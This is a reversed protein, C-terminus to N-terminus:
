RLRDRRAPIAMHVLPEEDWPPACQDIGSGDHQIPGTKQVTHLLLWWSITALEESTLRDEPLEDAPDFSRDVTVTPHHQDSTLGANALRGHHFREKLGYRLAVHRERPSGAPLFSSRRRAPHEVLKSLVRTRSSERFRDGLQDRTLSRSRRVWLRDPAPPELTQFTGRGGHGLHSVPSRQQEDYVIELPGVPRGQIEELGDDRARSRCRQKYQRGVAARFDGARM